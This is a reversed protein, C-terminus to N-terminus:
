SAETRRFWERIARTVTADNQERREREAIDADLKAFEATLRDLTRTADATRLWPYGM